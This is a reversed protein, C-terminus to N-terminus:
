CTKKSAYSIVSNLMEQRKLVRQNWFHCRHKEYKTMKPKYVMNKYTVVYKKITAGYKVFKWFLLWVVAIGVVVVVGVVVVEGVVVVIGVVVVVGVVM